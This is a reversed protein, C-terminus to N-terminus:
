SQKGATQVLLRSRKIQAQKQARNRRNKLRAVSHDFEPVFQRGLATNRGTPHEFKTCKIKLCFCGKKSNSASIPACIPACFRGIAVGINGFDLAFVAMKLRYCGRYEWFILPKTVFSFVALYRHPLTKHTSQRSIRQL